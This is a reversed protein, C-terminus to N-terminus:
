DLAWQINISAGVVNDRFNYFIDPRCQGGAIDMRMGKIARTDVRGNIGSMFATGIYIAYQKPLPLYRIVVRETNKVAQKVQPYSMLARQTERLAARNDAQSYCNTSITFIILVIYRMSDKIIAHFWILTM